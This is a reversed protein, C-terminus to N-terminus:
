LQRFGTVRYGIEDDAIMPSVDIALDKVFGLRANYSVDLMAVESSIARDVIKFLGPVTFPGGWDKVSVKVVKGRRVTVVAARPPPCFCMRHIKLRYSRIGRGNWKSRAQSLEGAASGDSISPDVPDVPDVPGPDTAAAPAALIFVLCVTSLSILKKM